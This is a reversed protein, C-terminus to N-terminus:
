IGSAYRRHDRARGASRQLTPDKGCMTITAGWPVLYIPGSSGVSSCVDDTASPRRRRFFTRECVYGAFSINRKDVDVNIYM